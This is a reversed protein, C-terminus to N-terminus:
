VDNITADRHQKIMLKEFNETGKRYCFKARLYKNTAKEKKLSKERSERNKKHSGLKNSHTNKSFLLSM